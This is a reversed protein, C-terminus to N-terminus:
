KSQDILFSCTNSNLIKINMVNIINAKIFNKIYVYVDDESQLNYRM